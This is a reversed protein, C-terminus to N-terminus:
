FNGHSTKSSEIVLNILQKSYIDQKIKLKKDNKNLSLCWAHTYDIIGLTGKLKRKRNNFYKELTKM